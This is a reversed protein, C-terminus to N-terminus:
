VYVRKREYVCECVCMCVLHKRTRTCINQSHTHTRFLPNRNSHTYHTSIHSKTWKYTYSQQQMHYTHKGGTHARTCQNCPIETGSKLALWVFLATSMLSLATSKRFLLFPCVLGNKRYTHEWCEVISCWCEMGCWGMSHCLTRHLEIMHVTMCTGAKGSCERATCQSSSTCLSTYCWCGLSHLLTLM